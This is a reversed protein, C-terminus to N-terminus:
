WEFKLNATRVQEFPFERTKGPETELSVIGDAYGALIGEWTRRGEVPDHLTLKAKQGQFRQYDKPKYLKREVGPSSVELTYHGPVTDEADLIAGVKESVLGCDAHTVGEPKDIAIRVFRANGGGKVEVEVLELGESQAVKQAIEEIKAAVVERMTAPIATGLLFTPKRGGCQSSLEFWLTGHKNSNRFPPIHSAARLHTRVCEDPPNQPHGALVRLSVLFPDRNPQCRRPTAAPSRPERPCDPEHPRYVLQKTQKRNPPFIAENPLEHLLAKLREFDEIARPGSPVGLPETQAQTIQGDRNVLEPSIGMLPKGDPSRPGTSQAANARNAALQKESVPKQPHSM